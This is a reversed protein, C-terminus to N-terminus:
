ACMIQLTRLGFLVELLSIIVPRTEPSLGMAIRLAIFAKMEIVNTDFWRRIRASRALNPNELRQAAYLNTQLVMIEFMRDTFLEGFTDIETPQAAYRM